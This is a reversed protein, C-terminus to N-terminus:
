ARAGEIHSRANALMRDITAAGVQSVKTRVVPDLDLYGHREMADVLTPILAKAAGPCSSIQCRDSLDASPCVWNTM